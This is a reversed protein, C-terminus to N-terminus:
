FIKLSNFIDLNNKQNIKKAEDTQELSCYRGYLNNTEKNIAFPKILEDNFKFRQAFIKALKFYSISSKSSIQEINRLNIKIAKDILLCLDNLHIFSVNLDSPVYIIQNNNLKKYWDVFRDLYSDVVKPMRITLGNYKSTLNEMKIKTLGYYNISKRKENFKYREKKGEFVHSSSFSILQTEAYSYSDMLDDICQYNLYDVKSKLKECQDINSLGALNIIVEFKGLNPFQKKEIDIFLNKSNRHSAFLDYNKLFKSLKKGIFGNSGIILIKKKLKM